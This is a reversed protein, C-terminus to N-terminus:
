KFETLIDALELRSKPRSANSDDARRYGFSVGVVSRLGRRRLQLIEDLKEFDVGELATSDIGMGAAAFLAFGLAIYVQATEWSLTEEVSGMHLGAFHRRGADLGEAIETKAYRGDAIEKDLVAKFHEETIIEPVAFFLVDSAMTVREKNFDPLAEAVKQKAEDTSVLIFQWPQFNVSSPTLRLIELLENLQNRPIKKGSYHKTTYRDRVIKLMLNEQTM